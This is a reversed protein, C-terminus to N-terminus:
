PIWSTLRKRLKRFKRLKREVRPPIAVRVLTTYDQGNERQREITLNYETHPMRSYPDRILRFTWDDPFDVEM